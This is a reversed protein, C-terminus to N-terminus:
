MSTLIGTVELFKSFDLWKLSDEKIEYRTQCKFTQIVNEANKRAQYEGNANIFRGCGPCFNDSKRIEHNYNSCHRFFRKLKYTSSRLTMINVEVEPEKILAELFEIRRMAQLAPGTIGNSNQVVKRAKEIKHNAEQIAEERTM